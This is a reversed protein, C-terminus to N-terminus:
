SVFEEDCIQVLSILYNGYVRMYVTHNSQSTHRSCLLNRNILSDVAPLVEAGM